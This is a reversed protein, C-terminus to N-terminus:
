ARARRTLAWVGLGLPVLAWITGNGFVVGAAAPPLLQAGAVMASVGIYVMAAGGFASWKPKPQLWHVLLMGVGIGAIEFGEGVLGTLWGEHFVFTGAGFGLLLAGPELYRDEPRQVLYAGMCVVGLLFPALHLRGALQLAVAMLVGGVVLIWGAARQKDM